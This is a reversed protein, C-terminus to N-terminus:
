AEVEVSDRGDVQDVPYTTFGVEDVWFVAQVEGDVREHLLEPEPHVNWVVGFIKTQKDAFKVNSTSSYM